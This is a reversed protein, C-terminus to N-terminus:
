RSVCPASNFSLVPGRVLSIIISALVIHSISRSTLADFPELSYKIMNVPWTHIKSMSHTGLKEGANWQM